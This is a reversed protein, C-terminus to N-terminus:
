LTAVRDEIDGIFKSWGEAYASMSCDATRLNYDYRGRPGHFEYCPRNKTGTNYVWASAIEEKTFHKRVDKMVETKWGRCFNHPYMDAM